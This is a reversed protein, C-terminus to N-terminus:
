EKPAEQPTPAYRLTELDLTYGPRQLAAIMQQLTRLAAQRRLEALELDRAAVQLRLADTESIVPAADFPSTGVTPASTLSTAEIPATVAPTEGPAADQAQVLAGAAVLMVAVILTKM